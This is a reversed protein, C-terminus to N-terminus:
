YTVHCWTTGQWDVEKHSTFVAPVQLICSTKLRKDMAACNCLM